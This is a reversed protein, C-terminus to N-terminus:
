QRCPLIASLTSHLGSWPGYTASKIWRKCRPSVTSCTCCTSSVANSQKVIVCAIISARPYQNVTSVIFVFSSSFPEKKARLAQFINLHKKVSRTRFIVKLFASKKEFGPTRNTFDDPQNVNKHAQSLLM